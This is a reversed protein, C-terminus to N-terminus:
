STKDGELSESDLRHGELKKEAQIRTKEALTREAKTLGHRIRNEQAVDADRQREMAKRARRLNVIEGM